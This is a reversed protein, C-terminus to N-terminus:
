FFFPPLQAKEERSSQWARLKPGSNSLNHSDRPSLSRTTRDGGLLPSTFGLQQQQEAATPLFGSSVLAAPLPQRFGSGGHSVAAKQPSFLAKPFPSPIRSPSLLFQHSSQALLPARMSFPIHPLHHDQKKGARQERVQGTQGLQIQGSEKSHKPAVEM